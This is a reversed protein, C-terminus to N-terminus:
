FTESDEDLPRLAGDGFRRWPDLQGQLNKNKKYSFLLRACLERRM